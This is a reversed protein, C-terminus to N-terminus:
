AGYLDDSQARNGKKGPDHICQGKAARFPISTEEPSRLIKLGLSLHALGTFCMVYSSFSLTSCRTEEGPLCRTTILDLLPSKGTTRCETSKYIGCAPDPGSRFVIFLPLFIFSNIGVILEVAKSCFM